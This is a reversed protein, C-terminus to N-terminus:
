KPPENVLLWFLGTNQMVKVFSNFDVPKVVYGNAGLDYAARIDPDEKSSTVIVVPLKKTRPDSKIKTLVELGSLKPLKLDLFIVKLPRAVSRSSFQGEAFIFDLAEKGDQAIYVENILNHKKLARMTLEADNPNDEVILIQVPDLNTIM